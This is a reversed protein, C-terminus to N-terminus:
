NISQCLHHRPYGEITRITETTQSCERIIAEFNVRDEMDDPYLEVRNLRDTSTTETMRTMELRRPLTKM